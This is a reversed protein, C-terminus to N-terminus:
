IYKYLLNEGYILLNNVRMTPYNVRKLCLRSGCGADAYSYGFDSDGFAFGSPSEDHVFYPYYRYEKNDYVKAVWRENLARVITKLKRYAIEDKSFGLSRLNEENMPEEGLEACADEYTKVRDMVSQSFFDKGFNNELVEKWESSSNKYLDRAQKGTLELTKKM